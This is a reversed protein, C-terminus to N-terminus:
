WRHPMGVKKIKAGAHMNEVSKSVRTLIVAHASVIEASEPTDVYVNVRMSGIMIMYKLELPVHLDFVHSAHLTKGACTCKQM